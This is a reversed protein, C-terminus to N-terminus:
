GEGLKLPHLQKYLAYLEEKSSEKINVKIDMTGQAALYEFYEQLDKFAVEDQPALKNIMRMVPSRERYSREEREPTMPLTQPRPKRPPSLSVHLKVKLEEPAAANAMSALPKMVRQHISQGKVRSYPTGNRIQHKERDSKMYDIGSSGPVDKKTQSTKHAKFKLAFKRESKQDM